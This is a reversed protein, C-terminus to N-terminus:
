LMPDHSKQLDRFRKLTGAELRALAARAKREHEDQAMFREDVLIRLTDLDSGLVANFTSVTVRDACKVLIGEDTAVFQERDHQVLTLIGPALATVFDIHRPLLCFAGNEAEALVKRVRQDVLVGTPLLVRLHLERPRGTAAEPM